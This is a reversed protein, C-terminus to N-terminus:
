NFCLMDSKLVKVMSDFTLSFSCLSCIDLINALERHILFETVGYLRFTQLFSTNMFHYFFLPM